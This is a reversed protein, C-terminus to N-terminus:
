AREIRAQRHPVALAVGERELRLKAERTLDWYVDWFDERSAWPRVIFEVASETLQHVRIAPPPDDLVKPHDRVLERFIEEAREVDASHALSFRLDVRRADQATVNRIVDGWIKSNPVILTQNDFTLITTSVLTTNDVTGFVGAAEIVDGVDFPRYMLIMSGAAFNGLTDQLAFGVIFGAIGLGALLTTVDIGVQALGVFVGVIVIVRSATNEVVRRALESVNESRRLGRALLRRAGKGVMWFLVVIASFIAARGIMGPGRRELWRTASERADEFLGRAVEVDLVDGTIEGTQQILAQRYVATPLGVEEMLDSTTWLSTAIADLQGEAELVAADREASEAKERAQDLRGGALELRGLLEEARTPLRQVLHDRARTTPLELAALRELHDVFFRFVEDTLEEQEQLSESYEGRAEPPIEDLASRRKTTNERLADLFPPMTRDLDRLLARTRRRGRPTAIGEEEQRGINRVLKAVDRMFLRLLDRRQLRLLELEEGELTKERRVLERYEARRSELEGLLQEAQTVLPAQEGNGAAGGAVPQADAAAAAVALAAILVLKVPAEARAMM